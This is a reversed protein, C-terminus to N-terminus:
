AGYWCGETLRCRLLAYQKMIYKSCQWNRLQLTTLEESKSPTINIHMAPSVQCPLVTNTEGKGL